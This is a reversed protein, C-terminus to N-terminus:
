FHARFRRVGRVVHVIAASKRTVSKRTMTAQAGNERTTHEREDDQQEEEDRRQEHEEHIAFGYGYYLATPTRGCDSRQFRREEYTRRLVVGSKRVRVRARVSREGPTPTAGDAVVTAVVGYLGREWLVLVADTTMLCLERRRTAGQAGDAVCRFTEALRLGREFLKGPEFAEVGFKVVRLM